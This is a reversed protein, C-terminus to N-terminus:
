KKTVKCKAKGMLYGVIFMLIICGLAIMLVQRDSLNHNPKDPKDDAPASMAMQYVEDLDEEADLMQPPLGDKEGNRRIPYMLQLFAKDQKSLDQNAKPKLGKNKVWSKPFFYHMISDPDYKTGIYENRKYRNYMNSEIEEPTWFNPEGSLSEAVVEKNWEIGGKPNQHEHLFAGLCHGFEHKVVGYCCDAGKQPPDDLWGLNMTPTGDKVRLADTGLLSWAGQKEIFSVRVDGDAEVFDLHLNVLPQYHQRVVNRVIERQRETGGIFSIKIHAYQPWVKSKLAIAQLAGFAPTPALDYAVKGGVDQCFHMDEDDKDGAGDAKTKKAPAQQGVPM